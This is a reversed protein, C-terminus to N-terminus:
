PVVLHVPNGRLNVQWTTLDFATNAATGSMNYRIKWWGPGPEGPPTPASYTNALPITITLWCGNFLSSGGTNTTVATVGSGSRSDCAVGNAAARRATYSFTTPAYGGSQPELIQLSAALSGTDGPDWLNIEMTKGAHVAEIQALYFLSAGGGNLPSFAEMTGLGYVRPAGGSAKTEISFSNHGDAASQAGPNGAETTTVHLRYTRGGLGGSLGGALQWWRLHYYRPDFANVGPANYTCDQVAGGPAPGNLTPDSARVNRFL